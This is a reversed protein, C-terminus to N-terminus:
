LDHCQELRLFEARVEPKSLFIGRVASTIMEGTHNVGRLQMCMHVARIIVGVGGSGSDVVYGRPPGGEKPFEEPILVGVLQAVHDAIQVTLNEQVQPRRSWYDTIRSLKSLGLLRDNGPVYAISAKGYFPLLHHSCLSRVPIGRLIVMEDAGNAPFTEIKPENLRTLGKCLEDYCARAAREPTGKFHPDDEDVGLGELILRFGEAVRARRKLSVIESM